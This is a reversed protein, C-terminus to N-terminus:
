TMDWQFPITGFFVAASPDGPSSVRPAKRRTAKRQPGLTFVPEIQATKALGGRVLSQAEQETLGSVSAFGLADDKLRVKGGLAAVRAAFTSPVRSKFTVFYTPSNSSARAAFAP